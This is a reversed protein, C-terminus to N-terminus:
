NVTNCLPNFFLVMFSSGLDDEYDVKEWHLIFVSGSNQWSGQDHTMHCLLDPASDIWKLKKFYVPWIISISFCATM